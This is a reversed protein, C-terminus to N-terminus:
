TGTNRNWTRKNTPVWRGGFMANSELYPVSKPFEELAELGVFRAPWDGRWRFLGRGHGCDVRAFRLLAKWGSIFDRLSSSFLCINHIPMSLHVRINNIRTYITEIIYIYIDYIYIYTHLPEKCLALYGSGCGGDRWGYGWNWGHPCWDTPHRTWFNRSCSTVTRDGSSRLTPILIVYHYTTNRASM